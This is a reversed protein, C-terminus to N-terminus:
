LQKPWRMIGIVLFSGDVLPQTGKTWIIYNPSNPDVAHKM